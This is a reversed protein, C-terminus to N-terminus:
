SAATLTNETARVRGRTRLAIWSGALLVVAAAVVAAIEPPLPPSAPADWQMGVQDGVALDAAGYRVFREGQVEIVNTTVLGSMEVPISPQGLFLHLTDTPTDISIPLSELEEPVRYRLFLERQGPQIPSLLLVRDGMRMVEAASTEGEGAHFETVGAPLRMEWTPMADASVLTRDASNQLQVVENAEWGGQPEPLLVIDRRTVTVAGPLASTTDHVAVSYQEPMVGGHVAPGFYRVSLYEATAFFVEFAEGEPEPLIFQFAGDAGTQETGIPGSDEPTVRHLTVPVNAVPEGDLIVRGDLTRDGAIQASAVTCWLAMLVLASAM